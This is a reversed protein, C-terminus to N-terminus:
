KSEAKNLKRNLAISIYSAMLALSIMIYPWDTLKHPWFIMVAIWIGIIIAYPIVWYKRWKWFIAPLANFPVLLPTWETCPLSSFIVLYINFLGIITQLVLLVYDMFQIKLLIAVITLILIIMSILLPSCWGANYKYTSPLVITPNSSLLQKDCVTANQLVPILDAPMIVKEEMTCDNDHIEGNCILSLFCQGWDNELQIDTLERRNLNKFKKPWVGYGIPITDLGEKLLELTSHACGRLMYNYQLNAGEMMHNDLIRWLNQKAAIPMNLTYEKVGRGEKRYLNLYEETPIAFMGMKLKGALFSLVKQRADESEYSFVYDLKHTPCQMHIGCHGLRAYLFDGPDAIFISAIVFDEDYVVVSDTNEAGWGFISLLLFVMMMIYREIKKM